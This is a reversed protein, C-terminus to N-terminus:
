QVVQYQKESADCYRSLNRYNAHGMVAIFVQIIMIIFKRQPKSLTVVQNIAEIISKHM